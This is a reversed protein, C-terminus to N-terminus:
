AQIYISLTSVHLDLVTSSTYPPVSDFSIPFSHSMLTVMTVISYMQM